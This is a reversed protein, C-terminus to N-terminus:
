AINAKAKLWTIAEEETDFEDEIKYDGSKPAYAKGEITNHNFTTTEGKTTNDDNPEAFKAKPYWKCVYVNKGGRISLGIAGIGVFPAVDDRNSVMEGAENTKHGLLPGKEAMTMENFELSLSVSNVSKDSEVVGNDGYDDVDSANPTGGFNVIPSLQKGAKYTIATDTENEIEAYMVHSIGVKAM